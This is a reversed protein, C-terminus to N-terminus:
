LQVLRCPGCAFPVPIWRVFGLLREPTDPDVQLQRQERKGCLLRDRGQKEFCVFNKTEEVCFKRKIGPSIEFIGCFMFFDVMM